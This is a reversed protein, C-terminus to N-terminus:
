LFGFALVVALALGVCLTLAMRWGYGLALLPMVAGALVAGLPVGIQKISMILSTNGPNTRPGLIHSSAPTMAGYGAGIAVPGLPALATWDSLLCVLGFGNAGICFLAVGMGGLRHLLVPVRGGAVRPTDMWGFLEQLRVALVPAPPVSEASAPLTYSLKIHSGSPVEITEPAHQELLSRPLMVWASQQDAAPSPSHQQQQPHLYRPM